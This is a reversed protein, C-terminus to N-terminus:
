GLVHWVCQSCQFAAVQSECSHEVASHASVARQRERQTERGTECVYQYHTVALTFACCCSCPHSFTHLDTLVLLLLLVHTLLLSLSVFLCLSVSVSLSFLFSDHMMLCSLMIWSGLLGPLSQCCGYQSHLAVLPIDWSVEEYFKLQPVSEECVNECFDKFLLYGALLAFSSLALFM